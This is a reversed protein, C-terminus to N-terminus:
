AVWPLPALQVGPARPRRHRGVVTRLLDAADARSATRRVLGLQLRLARWRHGHVSSDWAIWRTFLDEVGDCEGHIRQFRRLEELVRQPDAIHMNGDHVTYGVLPEDVPALPARAAVRIWLDWDALASLREDFGGASRVLETRLVVMSPGGIVNERVLGARVADPEQPTRAGVVVGDGDVLWHAGYVLGAGSCEGAAVATRLWTPAWRDDDDLFAIWRSHALALAANRAAAVGTSQEHRIVRVRRDRALARVEATAPTRSGDDVVVVEVAVDAQALADAIAHRVFRWRDRTPIVVCVDPQM